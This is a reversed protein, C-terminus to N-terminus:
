EGEGSEGFFIWRHAVRFPDRVVAEVVEGLWGSGYKALYHFINWRREQLDGDPFFSGFIRQASAFDDERSLKVARGARAAIGEIDEAVKRAASELKKRAAGGIRPDALAAALRGRADSALSHLPEEPSGAPAGLLDAAGRANPWREPAASLGIRRLLRATKGEVLTASLRLAIRPPPLGYWAFLPRLQAFYAVEAAGGLYVATPLLADQVVPRLAVGTSFLEPSRDLLDILERTAFERGTGELRFGGRGGAPALHHRRGGEILFLPFRDPVQARLGRAEVAAIGERLLEIIRHPEELVRRVLPAARARLSEPEVILLGQREFLRALIAAFGGALGRGRYLSGMSRVLEGHRRGALHALARGLVDEFPGDAAYSSLPRRDAAHPMAFEVTGMPGPDTRGPGLQGTVTGPFRSARAEDLDHDEGAVWFVPVHATGTKRQLFEAAAIVSVAKFVTFLPGTLFGPQQGTIALRTGARDLAELHARARDAYPIDWREGVARFLTSLGQRPGPDFGASTPPIPPSFYPDEPLWVSGGDKSPVRPQFEPRGLFGRPADIIEITRAEVTCNTEVSPATEVSPPAM